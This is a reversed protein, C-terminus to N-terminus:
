ECSIRRCDDSFSFLESYNTDPMIYCNNDGANNELTNDMVNELTRAWSMWAAWWCFTSRSMVFHKCKSMLLITQYAKRAEQYHPFLLYKDQPIIKQLIDSAKKNHDAFVYFIPNDVKDMIVEIAREYYQSKLEGYGRYTQRSHIAVPQKDSSILSDYKNIDDTIGGDYQFERLLEKKNMNPIVSDQWYGALFITGPIQCNGLEEFFKADYPPPLEDEYKVTTNKFSQRSSKLKRHFFKNIRFAMNISFQQAGKASEISTNLEPLIDITGESDKKFTVTSCLIVKRSTHKQLQKAFAYQFLQNGLGGLNIVVFM